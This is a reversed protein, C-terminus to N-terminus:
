NGDDLRFRIPVDLTGRTAGAPGRAPSFRWGEVTSRAATDLAAVGSSEAVEVREVTGDATVAVRLVVRGELGRRRASMPYRPHPQHIARPAEVTTPGPATIAHGAPASKGTADDAAATSTRRRARREEAPARVPDAVPPAAAAVSPTPPPAPPKQAPPPIIATPLPRPTPLAEAPPTTTATAPDPEATPIPASEPIAEPNTAAMEDGAEGDPRSTAPPAVNSVSESPGDTVLTVSIIEGVELEPPSTAATLALIVGVFLGHLILSSAFPRGVGGIGEGHRSSPRDDRSPPIPSGIPPTPGDITDAAVPGTTEMSPLRIVIAAAASM